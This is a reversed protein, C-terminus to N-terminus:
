IDAAQLRPAPLALLNELLGPMAAFHLQLCSGIVNHRGLVVAPERRGVAIEYVPGRATFQWDAQRYGVLQTGRRALWCTALTALDCPVAAAPAALRAALPLAGVLPWCEGTPLTIHESLYAMGGGEAYVRGGEAVYRRLSQLLCQNAALRGAFGELRGGCLLVLDAGEPLGEDALPSFTRVVAGGAELADLANPFYHQFAEDYAVAVQVRTEGRAAVGCM